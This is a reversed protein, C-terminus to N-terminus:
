KMALPYLILNLKSKIIKSMYAPIKDLLFHKEFLDFETLNIPRRTWVHMKLESWLGKITNLDLSQSPWIVKVPATLCKTVVKFVKPGNGQLFIWYYSGPAGSKWCFLLAVHHQWGICWLQPQTRWIFLRMRIGGYMISIALDSSIVSWWFASSLRCTEAELDKWVMTIYVKFQTYFSLIKKVQHM